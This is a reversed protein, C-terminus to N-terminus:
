IEGYFGVPERVDDFEAHHQKRHHVHNGSIGENSGSDAEAKVRRKRKRETASHATSTRNEKTIEDSERRKNEGNEERRQAKDDFEAAKRTHKKNEKDRSEELQVASSFASVLPLRRVTPPPRM